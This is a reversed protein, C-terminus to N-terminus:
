FIKKESIAKSKERVSAGNSSVKQKGKSVPVAVVAHELDIVKRESNKEFVVSNLTIETLVWGLIRENNKLRIKEGNDSAIIGAGDGDLYIGLLKLGDLSQDRKVLVPEEIVVDDGLAKREVWFLPRLIFEFSDHHIYEGSSIEIDSKMEMNSFGGEPKSFNIISYIGYAGMGLVIFVLFAVLTFMISLVNGKM